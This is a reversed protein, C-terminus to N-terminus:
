KVTITGKFLTIWTWLILCCNEKSILVGDKMGNPNFLQFSEIKIVKSIKSGISKIPNSIFQSENSVVSSFIITFPASISNILLTKKNRSKLEFLIREIEAEIKELDEPTLSKELDVDYYWGEAISPGIALLVDPYLRKIAQAMIHSCTHWYTRSEESELFLLENEM